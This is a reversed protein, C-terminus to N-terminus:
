EPKPFRASPDTGTGSPGPPPPTPRWAGQTNRIAANIVGRNLGPYQQELAQFALTPMLQSAYLILPTIERLHNLALGAAAPDSLALATTHLMTYNMAVLNLLTYDEQLVAIVDRAAPKRSYAQFRDAMAVTTKTFEVPGGPITELLSVTRSAQQHLVQLTKSILRLMEPQARLAPDVQQQTLLEILYHELASVECLQSRMPGIPPM